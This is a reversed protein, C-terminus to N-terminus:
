LVTDASIEFTEVPETAYADTAWGAFVYGDIALGGTNGIVTVIDGESYLTEDVPVTGTYANEGANADYTVTYGTLLEAGQESEDAAELKLAFFASLVVMCIICVLAIIRKIGSERINFM